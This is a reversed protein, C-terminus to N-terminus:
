EEGSRAHRDARAAQWASIDGALNAYVSLAIVVLVSEQLGFVIILVFIIPWCAARSLHFWEAHKSM